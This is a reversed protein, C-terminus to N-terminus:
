PIPIDLIACKLHDDPFFDLVEKEPMGTARAYKDAWNWLVSAPGDAEYAPAEQGNVYVQV